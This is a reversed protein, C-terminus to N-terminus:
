AFTGVILGTCRPPTGTGSTVHGDYITWNSVPRPPATDWDIHSATIFRNDKFWYVIGGHGNHAHEGVSGLCDLAM